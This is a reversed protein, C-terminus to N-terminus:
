VREFGCVRWLGRERVLDIRWTEERANGLYRKGDRIAWTLDAKKWTTSIDRDLTALDDHQEDVGVIHRDGHRTGSYSTASLADSVNAGRSAGFAELSVQQRIQPCLQFYAARWPDEVANRIPVGTGAAVDDINHGEQVDGFFSVVRNGASAPAEYHGSGVPVLTQATAFFLVAVGLLSGGVVALAALTPRVRSRRTALFACVVIGVPEFARGVSFVLMLAAVVAYFVTVRKLARKTWWLLAPVAVFILTIQGIESTALRDRPTGIVSDLVVLLSTSVVGCALLLPRALDGDRAGDEAETDM